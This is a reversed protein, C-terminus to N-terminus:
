EVFYCERIKDNGKTDVYVKYGDFQYIGAANNNIFECFAAIINDDGDTIIISLKNQNGPMKEVKACVTMNIEILVPNAGTTLSKLEGKWWEIDYKDTCYLPFNAIVSYQLNGLFIQDGIIIDLRKNDGPVDRLIDDVWDAFGIGNDNYFSAIYFTDPERDAAAAFPISSFVLVAILVGIVLQKIKRTKM